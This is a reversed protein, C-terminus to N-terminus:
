YFIILFYRTRNQKINIEICRTNNEKAFRPFGAALYVVGSTGISVFLDCCRIAATAESMVGQDLMDGFWIIDPRLWSGCKECKYSKYKEGIDESIGDYPCGAHSTTYFMSGCTLTKPNGISGIISHCLHQNLKQVQWIYNDLSFIKDTLINEL